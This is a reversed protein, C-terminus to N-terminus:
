WNGCPLNLGVPKYIRVQLKEGIKVILYIDEGCSFADLIELDRFIHYCGKIRRDETDVFFVVKKGVLALYRDGLEVIKFGEAINGEGVIWSKKKEEDHVLLYHDKTLVYLMGNREVAYVAEARHNEVAISDMSIVKEVRGDFDLFVLVSNTLFLMGDERPIIKGYIGPAEYIVKYGDETQLVLKETGGEGSIVAYVRGDNMVMVDEVATLEVRGEMRSFGIANVKCKGEGCVMTLEGAVNKLFRFSGREIVYNWDELGEATAFYPQDNICAGSDYSSIGRKAVIRLIDKAVFGEPELFGIEIKPKEVAQTAKPQPTKEEFERKTVESMYEKFRDATFEPPKPLEETEVFSRIADLVEAKTSDLFSMDFKLLPKGEIKASEVSVVGDGKGKVLESYFKELDSGSVDIRLPPTTGAVVLYSVDKRPNLQRLVESNPLLDSYFVNLREIYNYIHSRIVPVMDEPVGLNQSVMRDPKGYLFFSFYMPNAVATGHSPTSVLVLRKVNKIEPHRELALRAIIGGIGHAIVVYENKSFLPDKLIAALTEAEFLTYSRVGTKKFFDEAEREYRMSRTKSLPYDFVYITRDPFVSTWFNLDEDFGGSFKPDEGPVIIVAAKISSAVERILRLSHIQKEAPVQVAVITSTHFAQAEVYYGKDDKGITSGPYVYYVDPHDEPIYALAVGTFEDGYFYEPPIYIRIRIPRLAFENRLDRPKVEYAEGEIVKLGPFKAELEQIEGRDLKRIEFEKGYPFAGEPVHIFLNNVVQKVTPPPPKKEEKPKLFFVLILAIGVGGLIAMLLIRRKVLRGLIGVLKKLFNM